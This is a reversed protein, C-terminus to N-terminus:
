SGANTDPMLTLPCTLLEVIDEITPYVTAQAFIVSQQVVAAQGKRKTFWGILPIEKVVPIQNLVPIGGSVRRPLGLKVNADYRAIERLELSSLQVETNVTHREVRSLQPDVTGDPERIQTASVYDFTFRLAQGSPDIVPTVQFVNGGTVGYLEPGAERPQASLASLGTAVSGSQAALYILALQEAAELASVTEGLGLQASTRPSVRAVLRNSALTSTRQLVGVGVQRETLEGQLESLMPQIFAREFDDEIAITLEKLLQDAAAVRAYMARQPYRQRAEAEAAIRTQPRFLDELRINFERWLWEGLSLLQDVVTDRAASDGLADLEAALQSVHVLLRGLALRELAHLVEFQAPSRYGEPASDPTQDIGLSHRLGMLLPQRAQGPAPVPLGIAARRADVLREFEELVNVQHERKALCLVMLAEGLTTTAVPDPITWRTIQDMDAIRSRQREDPDFGLRHCIEPEYFHLRALRPRGAYRPDDYPAARAVEQQVCHRLLSISAAIGARTDALHEGIVQLAGHLAKTGEPTADSNLELTWLTLRAQPVPRDFDSIIRKVHEVDLRRGILVVTNSDVFGYISIRRAPDPSDPDAEAFWFPGKHRAEAFAEVEVQAALFAANRKERVKAQALALAAEAAHIREPLGNEEDELETVRGQAAAHEREADGRWQEAEQV